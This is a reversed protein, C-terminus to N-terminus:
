AGGMDHEWTIKRNGPDGAVWAVPGEFLAFVEGDDSCHRCGACAKEHAALIRAFSFGQPTQACRISQRELHGQIWPMEGVQKVAESADVLPVCGGWREVAALVREVLAASLWPRAGDHILVNEPHAPGIAKLARYVSDQRSEGGEVFDVLSLCIHPELLARARPVDGPPVTVVLPSFRGPSLFPLLARALVPVGDLCRYEKKEGGMRASTGAATVIAACSPPTV